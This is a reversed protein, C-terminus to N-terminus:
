HPLATRLAAFVYKDYETALLEIMGAHQWWAALDFNDPTVPHPIITVAPMAAHFLLMSRPMHYNATVLRLSTYGQSQMWDRTEEANGKTSGAQYGLAICCARLDVPVNQTGLVNEVSLKKHVGSIFLKKGAGAELLKIGTLVRESGGTLVIVADTPETATAVPVASLNEIASVFRLFGGLWLAVIGISVGWFIKKASIM